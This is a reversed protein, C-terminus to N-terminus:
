QHIFERIFQSSVVGGFTEGGGGGGNQIGSGGGGEGRWGRGGMM